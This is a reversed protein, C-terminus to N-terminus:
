GRPNHCIVIEGLKDLGAIVPDDLAGPDVLTVDCLITLSGGIKANSRGTLGHDPGAYVRDIDIEDNAGGGCRIARKGCGGDSYLAHEADGLPGCEVDLGDARAENVCEDAGVIEKFGPL